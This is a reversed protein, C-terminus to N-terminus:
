LKFSHNGKIHEQWLKSKEAALQMLEVDIEVLRELSLNYPRIYFERAPKQPIRPISSPIKKSFRWSEKGDWLSDASFDNVFLGDRLCQEFLRTGPFPNAEFLHLDGTVEIERIMEATEQQTEETDEPMGIIINAGVVIGASKCMKFANVIQERSVRRRMIDNRIFDSGSEVALNSMICGAKRMMDVLKEDLTAISISSTDFYVKIGNEIIMECIKNVRERDFTFNADHIKFFNVGYKGYLYNIEAFVREASRARYKGGMALHTSCYNCRGPCSRSTSLPMVIPNIDIGDPNWWGTTDVEYDKFSVLEYGPLPISDLDQIFLTKPIYVTEGNIRLCYGDLDDISEDEFFYRLLKPFDLDSEAIAAADIEPCNDIIEKAFLTTHIGGVIIKVEPFREKIRSSIERVTLFVPSHLCTIGVVTKGPPLAVIAVILDEITKEAGAPVNFDFITISDCVGSDRAAGSLYLLALPINRMRTKHYLDYEKPYVLVLNNSM